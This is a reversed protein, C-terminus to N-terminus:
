VYCRSRRMVDNEIADILYSVKLERNPVLICILNVNEFLSWKDQYFPTNIWRESAILQLYTNKLPGEVLTFRVDNESYLKFFYVHQLVKPTTHYQNNLPIKVRDVGTRIPLTQDLPIGLKSIADSPFNLLPFGPLVESRSSLAFFGDSLFSYGRKYLMGKLLLSALGTHGALAIGLDQCLFAYGPLVLVQRQRLLIDMCLQEIFIPVAPHNEQGLPDVVIHKGRLIQFQVIEPIAIRLEESNMQFNFGNVWSNQMGKPNIDAYNITVNAEQQLDVVESLNPFLIESNINLNFVSYTKM